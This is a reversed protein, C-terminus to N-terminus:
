MAIDLLLRDIANRAAGEGPDKAGVWVEGEAEWVQVRDSAGRQIVRDRTTELPWPSQQVRMSAARAPPGIRANHAGAIKRALQTLDLGEKNALLTVCVLEDPHTFRSLLSSFGDGTGTAIMLGQHGPFSWAGIRALRTGDALVPSYLLKRLSADKVLIEGALGIDWVSVDYASSYIARDRPKVRSAERYGSAPEIPDILAPQQLFRRHREGAGHSEREVGSLESGFFTHRLGLRDFQGTRVFQEYSKGSASEIARELDAYRSADRIADRVEDLALKKVEVLQMIAVATFADRMQAVDFLTNAAALTRRERDSVGYGAARTIYPAQVIALSMGPVEHEKMFSAIMADVSEGEFQTDPNGRAPQAVAHPAVLALALTVVLLRRM